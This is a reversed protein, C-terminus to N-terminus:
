LLLSAIGFYVLVSFVDQLITAIPGSANAPDLAIKHFIYPITLGTIVSSTISFLLASSIVIATYTDHFFFVNFVFLLSSIIMGILAVIFLHRAFYRFFTMHPDFTLDRIIFAQMQTGVASAMYLILPIYAALLLHTSLIHEFRAIIGSALIGGFLGIILWPLRQRLALIIPTHFIDAFTNNHVVGGFRLLNEISEKDLIHLIVDSTVIGLLHKDKDIVPVSKINHKLALLAVREQDTRARVSVIDTIMHSRVHDDKDMRFVDRISVIGKLVTNKDVVYVYNISEYEHSRDHLLQIIDAFTANLHITPFNHILLKEATENSSHDKQSIM